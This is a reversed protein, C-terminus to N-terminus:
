VQSGSLLDLQAHLQRQQARLTEFKEAVQDKTEQDAKAKFGEDNLRKEHQEAHRSVEDLQKGIKERARDFDFEAPAAVGIEAWPLITHVIREQASTDIEIKEAKAMTAAYDRWSSFEEAIGHGLRNIVVSVRQGPHYGLLARLSNVAETVGICHEMAAEDNASTWLSTAPM